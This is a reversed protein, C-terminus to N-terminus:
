QTFGKVADDRIRIIFVMEYDLHGDSLKEDKRPGTHASYYIENEDVDTIITAHHVIRNEKNAFFMLDGPQIDNYKINYQMGEVTWIQLVKGNIYGAWDSCFFEYQAKAASWANTM